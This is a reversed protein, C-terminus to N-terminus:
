RDAAHAGASAADSSAPLADPWQLWWRKTRPYPLANWWPDLAGTTGHLVAERSPVPADVLITRLRDYLPGRALSPHRQLLSLLSIADQPRSQALLRHLRADDASQLLTVKFTAAQALAGAGALALVVAGRSLAKTAQGAQTRTMM